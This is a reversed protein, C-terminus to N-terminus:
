EILMVPPHEGSRRGLGLCDRPRFFEFDERSGEPDDTDSSGFRNSPADHKLILEWELPAPTRIDDQESPVCDDYELELGCGPKITAEDILHGCVGTVEGFVVFFAM